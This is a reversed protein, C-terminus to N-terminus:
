ANELISLLIDVSEKDLIIEYQKIRNNYTKIEREMHLDSQKNHRELYDKLEVDSAIIHRIQRLIEKKSERNDELTKSMSKFTEVFGGELYGNWSGYSKGHGKYLVQEDVLLARSIIAIIEKDIEPRKVTKLSQITSIKVKDTIETDTTESDKKKPPNVLNLLTQETIDQEGMIYSLNYGFDKPLEDMFTYMINKKEEPLEDIRKIIAAVEKARSVVDDMVSSFCMGWKTVFYQSKDPFAKEYEKTYQIDCFDKVIVYMGKRLREYKDEQVENNSCVKKYMKDFVKINNTYIAYKENYKKYGENIEAYDRNEKLMCTLFKKTDATYEWCDRKFVPELAYCLYHLTEVCYQASESYALQKSEMSKKERFRGTALEYFAEERIQSEDYPEQFFEKEKIEKKVEDEVDYYDINKELYHELYSGDKDRFLIKRLTRKSFKCHMCYNFLAENLPM